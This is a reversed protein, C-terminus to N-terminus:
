GKRGRPQAQSTPPTAPQAPPPPLYPEASSSGASAASFDYVASIIFLMPNASANGTIFQPGTHLLSKANIGADIKLNNHRYGLGFQWLTADPIDAFRLEYEPNGATVKDKATISGLLPYGIGALFSWSETLATELGATALLGYGSKKTTGQDLQVALVEAGTQLSQPVTLNGNPALSFPGESNFYFFGAGVAVMTSAEPKILAGAQLDIITEKLDKDQTTDAAKNEIEPNEYFFGAKAYADVRQSLPYVARGNFEMSLGRSFTQRVTQDNQKTENEITGLLGVKLGLDYRAADAKGSYALQLDVQDSTNEVTQAETKTKNHDGAWTLRAGIANGGALPYAYVLDLPRAPAPALAAMFNRSFLLPRLFLDVVDPSDSLATGRAQMLSADRSVFLGFTGVGTSYLAGGYADSNPRGVEASVLSLGAATSPYAFLFSPDSLGAPVALVFTRSDSAQAPVVSSLALVSLAGFGLAPLRSEAFRRHLRSHKPHSLRQQTSVPCLTLRKM